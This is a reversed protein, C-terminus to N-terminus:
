DEGYVEFYSDLFRQFLEEEEVLDKLREDKLLWNLKENSEKLKYLYFCNLATLSALTIITFM